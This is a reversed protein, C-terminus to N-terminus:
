ALHFISLLIKWLNWDTIKSALYCLIVVSSHVNWAPQAMEIPFLQKTCNQKEKQPKFMKEDSKAVVTEAPFISFSNM